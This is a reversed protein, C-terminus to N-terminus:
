SVAKGSVSIGGITKANLRNISSLCDGFCRVQTIAATIGM